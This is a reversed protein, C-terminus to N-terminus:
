VLRIDGLKLIVANADTISAYEESQFRWTELAEKVEQRHTAGKQFVSFGTPGLHRRALPLLDRLPAMARASVVDAAQPPATEARQTLVNVSVGTERSVNQLFVAKRADSEIFTFTLKPAREAALIAIVMGPFGGGTGIDLWHGSLQRAARFVQVSDLFHRTWIDNLTSKAVLNIAPNWKKLLTAHVSLRDITERTVNFETRIREKAADHDIM